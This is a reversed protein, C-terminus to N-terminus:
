IIQSVFSIAAASEIKGRTVTEVRGVKFASSRKQKQKGAEFVSVWVDLIM